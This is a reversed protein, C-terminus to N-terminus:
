PAVAVPEFGHRALVAAGEASTAFALFVRAAHHETLLAIRYEAAVQFREPIAVAAVGEAAGLDSAYVIAADAEGLEVKALTARM